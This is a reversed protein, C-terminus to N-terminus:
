SQPQKEFANPPVLSPATYGDLTVAGQEFVRLDDADAAVTMWCVAAKTLLTCAIEVTYVPQTRGNPTGSAREIWMQHDGLNYAGLVPHDVDFTQKLGEAAGEGFGSLQDTTMTQGYCGFPLAVEVIASVGHRASFAVQVCAIGKKEEESAANRAGQQKAAPLDAPPDVTEWDPPLSYSFGLGSTHVEVGHTQAFLPAAMLALFAAFASVKM